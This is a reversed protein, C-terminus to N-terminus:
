PTRAYDKDLNASRPCLRWVAQEDTAVSVKLGISVSYLLRGATTAIYVRQGQLWSHKEDAVLDKPLHEAIKVTTGVLSFRGLGQQL